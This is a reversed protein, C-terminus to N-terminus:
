EPMYKQGVADPQRVRVPVPVATEQVTVTGSSGILGTPAPAPSEPFYRQGVPQPTVPTRQAAKLQRIDAELQDLRLRTEREFSALDNTSAKTGKQKQCRKRTQQNQTARQSHPVPRAQSVPKPSPVPTPKVSQNAANMADVAAKYSVCASLVEVEANYLAQYQRTLMKGRVSAQLSQLTAQPNAPCYNFYRPPQQRAQSYLLLAQSLSICGRWFALKANHAKLGAETFRIALAQRVADDIAQQPNPPCALYASVVPTPTIVPPAPAPPRTAILPALEAQAASSVGSAQAPTDFENLAFNAVNVNVSVVSAALLALLLVSSFKM